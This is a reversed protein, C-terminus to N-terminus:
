FTDYDSVHQLDRNEIRLLLIGHTEQHSKSPNEAFGRREPAPGLGKSGRLMELYKGLVCRQM